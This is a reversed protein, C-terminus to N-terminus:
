HFFIFISVWFSFLLLSYAESLVKMKKEKWYHDIRVPFFSFLFLCIFHVSHWHSHSLKLCSLIHTNPTRPPVSLFSPPPDPFLISSSTTELIKGFKIVVTFWYIYFEWYNNLFTISVIGLYIMVFSCMGLLLSFIKFSTMSINYASSWLYPHCIVQQFCHLLLYM